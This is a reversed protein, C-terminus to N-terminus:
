QIITFSVKLMKHKSYKDSHHHHHHHKKHHHKMKSNYAFKKKYNMKSHYSKNFRKKLKYGSKKASMKGRSMKKGQMWRQYMMVEAKNDDKDKDFDKM